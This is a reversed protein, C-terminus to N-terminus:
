CVSWLNELPVYVNLNICYIIYIYIYIYIYVCLPKSTNAIYSMCSSGKIDHCRSLRLDEIVSVYLSAM